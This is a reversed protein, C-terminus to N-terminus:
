VIHHVVESSGFRRQWIETMVQPIDMIKSKIWSDEDSLIFVAESYDGVLVPEANKWIRDHMDCISCRVRQDSHLSHIILQSHRQGPCRNTVVGLWSFQPALFARWFSGALTSAAALVSFCFGGVCYHGLMIPFLALCMIPLNYKVILLYLCLKYDLM